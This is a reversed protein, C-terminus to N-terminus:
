YFRPNNEQLSVNVYNKVGSYYFLTPRSARFQGTPITEKTIFNFFAPLM